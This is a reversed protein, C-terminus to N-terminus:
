RDHRWQSNASTGTYIAESEGWRGPVLCGAVVQTVYAFLHVVTKRWLKGTATQCVRLQWSLKGHERECVCCWRCNFSHLSKFHGWEGGAAWGWRDQQTGEGTAVKCMSQSKVKHSQAHSFRIYTLFQLKPYHGNLSASKISNWALILNLLHLFIM